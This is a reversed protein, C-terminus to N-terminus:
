LRYTTGFYTFIREYFIISIALILIFSKSLMYYGMTKFDEQKTSNFFLRSWKILYLLQIISYLITVALMLYNKDCLLLKFINVKAMFNGFPPFGCLAFMSSLITFGLIPSTKLIGSLDTFSKISRSHELFFLGSFFCFIALSNYSMYTMITPYSQAVHMVSIAFGIHGISITAIFKHISHQFIPMIAGIGMAIIASSMLIIKLCNLNAFLQIIKTFIFMMFLKWIAEIFLVVIHSLKEYIDIIWSHFPSCGLKFFLACIILTKGIESMMGKALAVNQFTLSGCQSYILSCGFIFVASMVASLLLFRMACKRHLMDNHENLVLFGLSFTYMELSLILTLLSNASTSLTIANAIGYILIFFNSNVIKSLKIYNLYGFFVCLCCFLLIKIQGLMNNYVFLTTNIGDELSNYVLTATLLIAAFVLSLKPFVKKSCEENVSNKIILLALMSLISFIDPFAFNLESFLNLPFLM